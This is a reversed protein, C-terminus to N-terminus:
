ATSGDGRACAMKEEIRKICNGAYEGHEDPWRQRVSQYSEIAREWEGEMEYRSAASLVSEPSEGGNRKQDAAKSKLIKVAAIVSFIALFCVAGIVGSLFARLSGSLMSEPSTDAVAAAAAGISGMLVILPAIYTPNSLM